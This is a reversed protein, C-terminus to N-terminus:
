LKVLFYESMNPWGTLLIDNLTGDFNNNHLYLIELKNLLGLQLPLAGELDNKNVRVDTLEELLGLEIPLTGNFKNDDL